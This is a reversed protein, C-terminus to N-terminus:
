DAARMADLLAQIALKGSQQRHPIQSLPSVSAAADALIESRSGGRQKAQMYAIGLDFLYGVDLTKPAKESGSAAQQWGALGALLAKLVAGGKVERERDAGEVPAADTADKDKDRLLKQVYPVLDDLGIGQLRFQEALRELGLAYMQASGNGPQSRLLQGAHAMSDALDAGPRAQAAQAASRFIAVMHDGHNGNYPDAANLEDQNQRLVDAVQNFLPALEFGTQESM